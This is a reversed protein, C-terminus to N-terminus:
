KRTIKLSPPDLPQVTADVRTVAYGSWQTKGETGTLDKKNYYNCKFAGGQPMGGPLNVSCEIEGIVYPAVNFTKEITRRESPCGALEKETGKVQLSGIGAKFLKESPYFEFFAMFNEKGELSSDLTASYDGSHSGCDKANNEGYYSHAVFGSFQKYGEETSAMITGDDLIQPKFFVTLFGTSSYRTSGTQLGLIEDPKEQKAFSRYTFNLNMMWMGPAGGGVILPKSDLVTQRNGNPDVYEYMALYSLVANKNASLSDTFAGLQNTTLDKESVTPPEDASTIRTFVKRNDLPKGNCDTLTVKVNARENPKVREKDITVALTPNIASFQQGGVGTTRTRSKKVEWLLIKADGSGASEVQKPVTPEFMLGKTGLDEGTELNRITLNLRPMKDPDWSTLEITGFVIYVAEATKPDPKLDSEQPFTDLGLNRQFIPTRFDLIQINPESKLTDSFVQEIKQVTLANVKAAAEKNTVIDYIAVKIPKKAGDSPCPQKDDQGLASLSLIFIWFVLIFKKM